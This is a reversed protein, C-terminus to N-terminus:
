SQMEESALNFKAQLRDRVNGLVEVVGKTWLFLEEDTNFGQAALLDELKSHPPKPSSPRDSYHAIFLSRFERVKKARLETMLQAAQDPMQDGLLRQIQNAWLDQFKYLAIMITGIGMRVLYKSHKTPFGSPAKTAMYGVVRGAHIEGMLDNLVEFASKALEIDTYTKKM